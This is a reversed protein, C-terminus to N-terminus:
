LIVRFKYRDMAPPCPANSGSERAEIAGGEYQTNKERDAVYLIDRQLFFIKFIRGSLKKTITRSLKGQM